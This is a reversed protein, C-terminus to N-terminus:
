FTDPLLNKTKRDVIWWGRGGERGRKGCMGMKAYMVGASM